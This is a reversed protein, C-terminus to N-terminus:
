QAARLADLVGWLGPYRLFLFILLAGLALPVLGMGLIGANVLARSYGVYLKLM